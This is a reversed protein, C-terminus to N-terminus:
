TEQGMGTAFILTEPQLIVFFSRIRCSFDAFEDFFVRNIDWVVGSVCKKHSKCTGNHWSKM